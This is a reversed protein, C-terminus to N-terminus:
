IKKMIITKNEEDLILEINREKPDLDLKSTWSLPLTIKPSFSNGAKNFSVKSIRKKM